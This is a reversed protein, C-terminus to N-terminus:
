HTGDCYRGKPSRSAVRTGGVIKSWYGWTGDPLSPSGPADTPIFETSDVCVIIWQLWTHQSKWTKSISRLGDITSSPCDLGWSYRPDGWTAVADGWTRTATVWGTSDVILWSRHLWAGVLSYVGRSVSDWDWNAPPAIGAVAPAHTPITTPDSGAPVYNWASKASVMLVRPQAPTLFGLVQSIISRDSGARRWDDYARRLRIAYSSAPENPGRPIELDDGIFALSDVTKTKTPFRAALGKTLHDLVADAALMLSYDFKEWIGAQKWAPSIAKIFDRMGLSTPAPM